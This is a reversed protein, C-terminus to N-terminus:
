FGTPAALGAGTLKQTANTYRQYTYAFYGYVVLLIGLANAKPQEARIYIPASAEEWLHCEIAPVVYVEDENDTGGNTLINADMVVQLGGPFVGATGENYHNANTMGASRPPVNQSALAPWQSTLLSQLFYWRRPHVILHSPHAMGLTATESQSMAGLVAPFMAALTAATATANAHAVNTLGTTTQNLMTSDLNTAYQRFLDQMVVDEVGTGREIAQRSVTQEGLATQVNITLLTDDISVPTTTALETTQLGVGSSTTIRSLNLSMGSAPLAHKNCIDAFPRLNAVHPAVMDVLYQPVVLGSFNSTATDGAARLEYATGMREVTEERMHRQLRDAARVDNSTFQRMIDQLFQKGTPDNHETYTREERGVSVSARQRDPTAPLKEPQVPNAMRQDMDAEQAQVRQARALKRKISEQQAQALEVVEDLRELEGEEEPTLAERGEQQTSALIIQAARTAKAERTEAAELEVEISAVLGNIDMNKM